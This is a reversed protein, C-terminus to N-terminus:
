QVNTNENKESKKSPSNMLRVTHMLASKELDEDMKQSPSCVSQLIGNKVFNLPALEKSIIRARCDLWNEQDEAELVEPERRVERM